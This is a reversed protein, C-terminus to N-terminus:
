TELCGVRVRPTITMFSVEVLVIAIPPAAMRIGTNATALYSRDGNNTSLVTSSSNGNANVADTGASIVIPSTSFIM